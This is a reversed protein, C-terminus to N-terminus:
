KMTSQRNDQDVMTMISSMVHYPPSQRAIAKNGLYQPFHQSSKMNQPFQISWVELLGSPISMIDLVLNFILVSKQIKLLTQRQNHSKQKIRTDGEKERHLCKLFRRSCERVFTWRIFITARTTQFYKFCPTVVHLKIVDLQQTANNIHDM